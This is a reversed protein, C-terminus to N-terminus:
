LFCNGLVSLAHFTLLAPFHDGEFTQSMCLWTRILPIYSCVSINPFRRTDRHTRVTSGIQVHIKLSETSYWPQTMHLVSRHPKPLPPIDERVWTVNKGGKPWAPSCLQLKYIVCCLKTNIWLPGVCLKVRSLSPVMYNNIFYSSNIVLQSQRSQYHKWRTHRHTMMACRPGPSVLRLFFKWLLPDSYEALHKWINQGDTQGDTLLSQWRQLMVVTFCVFMFSATAFDLDSGKM